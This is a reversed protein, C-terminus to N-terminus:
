FFGFWIWGGIQKLDMKRRNEKNQFILPKHSHRATLTDGQIMKYMTQMMHLSLLHNTRLVAPVQLIIKSDMCLNELLGRGKFNESFFEAHQM